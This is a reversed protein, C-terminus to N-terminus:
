SFVTNHITKLMKWSTEPRQITLAVEVPSKHEGEVIHRGFVTHNHLFLDTFNPWITYPLVIIIIFANPKQHMYVDPTFLFKILIM